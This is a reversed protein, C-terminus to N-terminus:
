IGWGRKFYFVLSFKWLDGTSFLVGSLFSFNIFFYGFKINLQWLQCVTKPVCIESRRNFMLVILKWQIKLELHKPGGFLLIKNQAFCTHCRQYLLWKSLWACLLKVLLYCYIFCAFNKIMFHVCVCFSSCLVAYKSVSGIYSAREFVWFQMLPLFIWIFVHCKM